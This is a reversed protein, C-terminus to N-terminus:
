KLKDKFFDISEQVAKDQSIMNVSVITNPDAGCALLLGKSMPELASHEHAKTKACFRQVFDCVDPIQWLERPDDDYGAFHLMIATNNEIKLNRWAVVATALAKRNTRGRECVTFVVVTQKLDFKEGSVLQDHLRWDIPVM